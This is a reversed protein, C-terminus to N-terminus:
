QDAKVDALTFTPDDDIRIRPAANDRTAVLHERARRLAKIEEDINHIAQDITPPRPARKTM